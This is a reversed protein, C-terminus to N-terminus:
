IYLLLTTNQFLPQDRLMYLKRITPFKIPSWIRKHHHLHHKLRNLNRKLQHNLRKKVPQQQKEKKVPETSTSTATATQNAKTFTSTVKDQSLQIDRSNTEILDKGFKM